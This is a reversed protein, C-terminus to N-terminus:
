LVNVAVQDTVPPTNLDTLVFVEKTCTSHVEFPGLDMVAEINSGKIDNGHGFLTEAVNDLIVMYTGIPAGVGMSGPEIVGVLPENHGTVGSVGVVRWVVVKSILVGVIIGAVSSTQSYLNFPPLKWDNAIVAGVAGFLEVTKVTGFVACGL